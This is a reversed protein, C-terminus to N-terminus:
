NIGANYVAYCYKEKLARVHLSRKFRVVDAPTRVYVILLFSEEVDQPTLGFGIHSKPLPTVEHQVIEVERKASYEQVFHEAALKIQKYFCVEVPFLDTLVVGPNIRM